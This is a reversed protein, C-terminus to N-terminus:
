ISIMISSLSASSSATTPPEPDTVKLKVFVADPVVAAVLPVRVILVVAEEALRDPVNLEDEVQLGRRKMAAPRTM